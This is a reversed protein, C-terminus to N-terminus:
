QFLPEKSDAQEGLTLEKELKISVMRQKRNKIAQQGASATLLVTGLVIALLDRNNM